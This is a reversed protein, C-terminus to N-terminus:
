MDLPPHGLDTLTKDWIFPWELKRKTLVEERKDYVIVQRGPMKGVTVSTFRGSRGASRQESLDEHTGIKTRGWVVFNRSDLVFSPHLIDIAYDVRGISVGDSPVPM